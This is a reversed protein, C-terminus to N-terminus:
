GYRAEFEALAAEYRAVLDRGWPETDALLQARYRAGALLELGAEPDGAEAEAVADDLALLLGDIEHSPLM